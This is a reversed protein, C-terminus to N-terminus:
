SLRRSPLDSSTGKLLLSDSRQTSNAAATRGGANQNTRNDTVSLSAQAM